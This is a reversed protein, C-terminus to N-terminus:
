WCLKWWTRKRWEQVLGSNWGLDILLWANLVIAAIMVLLSIRVTKNSILLLLAPLSLCLAILTAPIVAIIEFGDSGKAAPHAFIYAILYFWCAVLGIGIILLPRRLRREDQWLLIWWQTTM